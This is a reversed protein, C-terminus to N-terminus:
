PNFPLTFAADSAKALGISNRDTPVFRKPTSVAWLRNGSLDSQQVPHKVVPPNGPLGQGTVPIMGAFLATGALAMIKSLKTMKSLKKFITM